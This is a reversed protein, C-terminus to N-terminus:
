PTVWTSGLNGIDTPSNNLLLSLWNYAFNGFLSSFSMCSHKAVRLCEQCNFVFFCPIQHSQLIKEMEKKKKPAGLSVLCQTKSYNRSISETENGNRVNQQTGDRSGNGRVNIKKNDEVVKKCLQIFTKVSLRLSKSLAEYQIGANWRLTSDHWPGKLMIWVNGVKAQQSEM